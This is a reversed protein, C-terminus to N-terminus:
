MPRLEHRCGAQAFRVWRPCHGWVQQPSALRLLSHYLVSDGVKCSTFQGRSEEPVTVQSQSKSVIMLRMRGNRNAASTDSRQRCRLTALCFDFRNSNAAAITVSGPAPAVFITPRWIPYEPRDHVDSSRM